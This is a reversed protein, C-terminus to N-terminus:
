NFIFCLSVDNMECHKIINEVIESKAAIQSNLIKNRELHTQSVIQTSKQFNKKLQDKFSLTSNVEDADNGNEHSDPHNREFDELMEELNEDM